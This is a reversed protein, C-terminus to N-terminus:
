WTAQLRLSDTLFLERSDCAIASQMHVHLTTQTPGPPRGASVPAVQAAPKAPQQRDTHAAAKSSGPRPPTGPTRRTPSGSVTPERAPSSPPSRAAAAPRAPIGDAAGFIQEHSVGRLSIHWVLRAIMESHDAEM